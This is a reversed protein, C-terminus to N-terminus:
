NFCSTDKMEENDEECRQNFTLDSKDLASGSINGGHDRSLDNKRLLESLDELVSDDLRSRDTQPVRDTYDVNKTYQHHSSMMMSSREQMQLEQNLEELLAVRNKARKEKM